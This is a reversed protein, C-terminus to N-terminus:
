PIRGRVLLGDRELGALARELREGSVPPEAGELMAALVRGRAWRDSDEFRGAARRPPPDASPGVCGAAV